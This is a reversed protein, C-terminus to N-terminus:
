IIQMCGEITNPYSVTDLIVDNEDITSPSHDSFLESVVSKNITVEATDDLKLDATDEFEIPEFVSEDVQQKSSVPYENIIAQKDEAAGTRSQFPDTIDSSLTGIPKAKTKIPL